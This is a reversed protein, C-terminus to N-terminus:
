AVTERAIRVPAEAEVLVPAAPPSPAVRPAAPMLFITSVEPVDLNLVPESESRGVALVTEVITRIDHLVSGKDISDVYLRMKAPMIKDIYHAAPDEARALIQEENRFMLTARHTIGPRVTLIREFEGPFLTAYEPVEPRPGVMSMDGSLVNFLQPLEDLKHRRLFRGARTIREDGGITLRGGLM